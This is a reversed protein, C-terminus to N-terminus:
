FPIIILMIELVLTILFRFIIPLFFFYQLIFICDYESFIRCAGKLLHYAVYAHQNHLYCGALLQINTESSSRRLRECMFIANHYMFHGLCKAQVETLLTEM